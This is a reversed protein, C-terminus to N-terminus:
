KAKKLDRYFNEHPGVQTFEVHLIEITLNPPQKAQLLERLKDGQGKFDPFRYAILYEKKQHTFKHIWYDVLDGGKQVGILPNPFIEDEIVEQLIAVFVKHQKKKFREFNPTYTPTVTIKKSAM